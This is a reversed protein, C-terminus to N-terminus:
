QGRLAELGPRLSHKRAHKDILTKLYAQWEAEHDAARYAQRAKSLWRLAHHYYRAKGEDMIPEAQKVCQGIAWDPYAARTAQVMEKVSM